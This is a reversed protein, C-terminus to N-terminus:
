RIAESKFSTKKTPFIVTADVVQVQIETPTGKMSPLQPPLKRVGKPSFFVDGM